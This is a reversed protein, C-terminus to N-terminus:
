IFIKKIESTSLIVRIRGFKAGLILTANWRQLNLHIKCTDHVLHHNLCPTLYQFGLTSLLGAILGIIMAGFPHIVMDAVAGVAVGGALTANQIHM